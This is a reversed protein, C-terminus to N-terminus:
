SGINHGFEEDETDKEAEEKTTHVRGDIHNPPTYITYIKLPTDGINTFNHRTNPSVIIVDGSSVEFEKEGVLAKGKGSHFFLWQEVREHVEEGVDGGVPIEMVVLQSKEGTYIVKRFFNNAQTEKIINGRYSM